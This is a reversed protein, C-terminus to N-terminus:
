GMPGYWLWDANKQLPSGAYTYAKLDIVKFSIQMQLKSFCLLFSRKEFLMLLETFLWLDSSHQQKINDVSFITRSFPLIHLSFEFRNLILIGTFCFM